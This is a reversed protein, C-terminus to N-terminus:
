TARRLIVYDRGGAGRLCTWGNPLTLSRPWRAGRLNAGSLDAGELNARYLNAGTLDARRLDAYEPAFVPPIMGNEILWRCFSPYAKALWLQHLLTARWRVVGARGQMAAIADFVALGEGCAGAAVLDRRRIRIIVTATPASM